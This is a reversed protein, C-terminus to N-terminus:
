NDTLDDNERRLAKVRGGESAMRKNVLLEKEEKSDCVINRIAAYSLKISVCKAVIILIAAECVSRGTVFLPKSFLFLYSFLLLSFTSIFPFPM